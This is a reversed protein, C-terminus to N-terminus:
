RTPSIGPGTSGSRKTLSPMSATSSTGTGDARAASAKPCDRGLLTPVLQDCGMGVLRHIANM